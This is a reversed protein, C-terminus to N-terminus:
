VDQLQTRRPAKDKNKGTNIRYRKWEFRLGTIIACYQEAIYHQSVERPLSCFFSEYLNQLIPLSHEYYMMSDKKSIKLCIIVRGIHVSM